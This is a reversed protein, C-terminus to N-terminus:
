NNGIVDTETDYSVYVFAFLHINLLKSYKPLEKNLIHIFPCFQKNANIITINQLRKFQNVKIQSLIGFTPNNVSYYVAGFM